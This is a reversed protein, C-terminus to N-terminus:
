KAQATKVVDSVKFGTGSIVDSVSSGDDVDVARV